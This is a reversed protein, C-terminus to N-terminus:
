QASEIEELRALSAQWAQEIQFLHFECVPDHGDRKCADVTTKVITRLTPIKRYSSM